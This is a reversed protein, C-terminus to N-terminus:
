GDITLVYLMLQRNHARVSNVQTTHVYLMLHGKHACVANVTQNTCICYQTNVACVADVTQKTCVFNSRHQTCMCCYSHAKHVYLM